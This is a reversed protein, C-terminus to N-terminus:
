AIIPPLGHVTCPGGATLTAAGAATLTM